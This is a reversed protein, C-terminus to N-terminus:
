KKRQKGRFFGKFKGFNDETIVSKEEAIIKLYTETFKDMKFM